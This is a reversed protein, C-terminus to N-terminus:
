SPDRRRWAAVSTIAEEAEQLTLPHPEMDDNFMWIQGTAGRNKYWSMAVYFGGGDHPHEPVWFAGFSAGANDDRWHFAGPIQNDDWADGCLDRLANATACNWNKPAFTGTAFACQPDSGFNEPRGTEGYEAVCRPCRPSM